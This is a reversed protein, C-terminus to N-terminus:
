REHKGNMDTADGVGYLDGNEAADHVMDMADEKINQFTEYAKRQLQVGSTVGKVAMSKAKGIKVFKL